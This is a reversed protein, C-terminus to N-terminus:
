VGGVVFGSGESSREETEGHTGRGLNSGKGLPLPNERETPAGLSCFVISLNARGHYPNKSKTNSPFSKGCLPLCSM